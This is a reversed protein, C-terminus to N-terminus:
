LKKSVGSSPYLGFTCNTWYWYCPGDKCLIMPEFFVHIDDKGCDPDLCSFWFNSYTKSLAAVTIQLFVKMM